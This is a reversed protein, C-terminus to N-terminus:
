CQANSEEAENKVARPLVTWSHTWNQEMEKIPTVFGPYDWDRNWPVSFRWDRNRNRYWGTSTHLVNLFFYFRVILSIYSRNQCHTVSQSWTKYHVACFNTKAFFSFTIKSYVLSTAVFTWLFILHVVYSNLVAPVAYYRVALVPEPEMNQTAGSGPFGPVPYM